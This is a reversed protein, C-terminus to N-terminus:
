SSQCNGIEISWEQGESGPTEAREPAEARGGRHAMDLVRRELWPNQARAEGVVGTMVLAVVGAGLMKPIAGAVARMIERM